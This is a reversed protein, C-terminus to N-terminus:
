DPHRPRKREMACRVSRPIDGVLYHGDRKKLAEVAVFHALINESRPVFHFRVNQFHNKINQIDQIISRIVLRDRESSQCKSIVTRSDGIVQLVNFGMSIGLLLAQLGAHAEAAFPTAINSHIVSKSALIEGEENRVVLGSVSRSLQQDFAADFYIAVSLRREISKPVMSADSPEGKWVQFDEHAVSALPIQKIKRALDERFTNDILGVKWTKNVENILDSVLVFNDNRHQYQLRDEENGSIWLDALNPLSLYREPDNSSRIRLVRTIVREEEEQTNSSMLSSLGERCFLFLFPSLPDCQRLGRSPVFNEGIVGNFVVPYSVITVCKMLVNVWEADFGLKKMIKEVFSWEIRDYAKSMDLKVAMFGKKGGRKNKLTHLIEYALLVNDCILRGPVFASQAPAKTPGLEALAERIEALAERIEEITYRAKLRLNDEDLICRNIGALIHDFNGRKGASFLQQFYLRAIGEMEVIDETDRGDDSQMRSIFNRQKKSYGHKLNLVEVEKRMNRGNQTLLCLAIIKRFAEMKGEERPLGGKNEFGYLIENFDGCVMWPLEGVTRLQRLLNWSEEKDNSYHSGYFGTFKWNNCEDTDDIVVNIHSKSYSQLRINIYGRWALCLGGRSGFFMIQKKKKLHRRIDVQVRVRMFNQNEKGLESGDYEMFAGIFNGLQIALSESFFGIPIDHVREMDM